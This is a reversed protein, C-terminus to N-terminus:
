GAGNNNNISGLQDTLYSSTQQLQSMLTDLATFERRYRAETQELRYELRETQTDITRRRADLSDEKVAILGEADTYRDLADIVRKSFGNEPDTMAAIFNETDDAAIEAFTATDISLTGNRDFTLGLEYPSYESNKVPISEFFVRSLDAKISRLTGDSSLEGESLTDVNDILSNYTTVFENMLEEFSESNRATELKGSGISQLNLTVGPIADTLTNNSSTAAFGDINVLADEAATVESFLGPAQISNATGTLRSTLILRSGGDLNLVSASVTTNDAADNIADRLGLLTSNSGDLTVSFSEEGSTFSYSGSAVSSEGGDVYPDTSIQHASALAVVEISHNEIRTGPSTDAVFVDENDSFAQYEGFKTTDGISQSANELESLASKLSGLASLKVDVDQQKLTLSNVPEREISMLQSIISEIDLGSGVGASTIM